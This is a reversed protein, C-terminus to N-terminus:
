VTPMSLGLDIKFAAGDVPNMMHTLLSPPPSRSFWVCDSCPRAKAPDVALALRLSRSLSGTSEASPNLLISPARFFQAESADPNKELRQFRGQASCGFKVHDDSVM